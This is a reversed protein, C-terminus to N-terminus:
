INLGGKSNGLNLPIRLSSSSTPKRSNKRSNGIALGTSLPAVRDVQDLVKPAARTQPPPAIPPPPIIEQPKEIKPSKIQPQSFCM